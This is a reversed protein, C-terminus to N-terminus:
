HRLTRRGVPHLSGSHARWTRDTRANTHMSPRRRFQVNLLANGLTPITSSQYNSRITDRHRRLDGLNSCVPSTGRQTGRKGGNPWAHVHRRGRDRAGAGLDPVDHRPGDDNPCFSTQRDKSQIPAAQQTRKPCTPPTGQGGRNRTWTQPPVLHTQCAPESSPRPATCTNMRRQTVGKNASGQKNCQHSHKATCCDKEARTTQGPVALFFAATCGDTNTHLM